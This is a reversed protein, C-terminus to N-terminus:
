YIYIGKLIQALVLWVLAVLNATM